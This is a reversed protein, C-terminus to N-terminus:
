FKWWNKESRGFVTWNLAFRNQGKCWIETLILLLSVTLTM